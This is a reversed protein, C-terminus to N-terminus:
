LETRPMASPSGTFTSLAFFAFYTLYAQYTQHTRYPSCGGSGGSRGSGGSGDSGVIFLNKRAAIIASSAIQVDLSRDNMVTSPFMTATVDIMATTDSM